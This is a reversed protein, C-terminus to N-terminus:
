DRFCCSSFFPLDTSPNEERSDSWCAACSTAAQFVQELVTRECEQESIEAM